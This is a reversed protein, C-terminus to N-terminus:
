GKPVAIKGAATIQYSSKNNYFGIIQLPQNKISEPITIEVATSGEKALVTKLNRVVNVHLLVQGNNEGRKVVTQAQPQVLAINLLDTAAAKLTCSVVITSADKREVQLYLKDLTSNKKLSARLTIENSGVFEYRGNVVVQPTYISQLNFQQAYDRQRNSFSAQSFPDKWGLYDWYDVHYSLVYVDKNEASIRALLKDAPPCSSCGESTFLEVVAIGRETEMKNNETKREGRGYCSAFVYLTLLWKFVKSENLM